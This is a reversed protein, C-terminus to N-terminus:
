ETPHDTAQEPVYLVEMWMLGSGGYVMNYIGFLRYRAQRLLDHLNEFSMQDSYLPAFQVESFVIRVRHQQLLVEAGRLVQGEAGQVDIKLIDIEAVQQEDCFDDLRVADVQIQEKLALLEDGLLATSRPDAALLSSTYSSQNAHFEFAGSRDAVAVRHAVVRDCDVYTDALQAHTEPAPEFAHIMATPFLRRYVATTQGANAGVDFIMQVPYDQLLAVQDDFVDLGWHHGQPRRRLEYGFTAFGAQISQKLLRRSM